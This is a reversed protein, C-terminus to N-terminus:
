WNDSPSGDAGLFANVALVGGSGVHNGAVTLTTGPPTIGPVGLQVSGANKLGNNRTQDFGHLDLTGGSKVVTHSEASFVDVGGAALTGSYITPGGYNNGGPAGGATFITTSAFVNVTGTNPFGPIGVATIMPTFVYDTSTHNFNLASPTAEVLDEAIGNQLHVVLTNLTGPAVPASGPPAGINITGKASEGTVVFGQTAVFIGGPVTVVGGNQVTLTEIGYQAVTLTTAVDTSGM